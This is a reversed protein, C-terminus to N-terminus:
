KECIPFYERSVPWISWKDDLMAVAHETSDVKRPEGPAWNTYTMALESVAWKWTGDGEESGSTWWYTETVFGFLRIHLHTSSKYLNGDSKPLFSAVIFREAASEISVLKM